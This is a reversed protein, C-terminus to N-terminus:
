QLFIPSSVNFYLLQWQDGHRILRIAIQASGNEFTAGAIYSATVVKGARVLFSINAEGKSGDYHKLKGLRSLRALLQDLQREDTIARRLEPSARKLLEEKSWTSVIIPVQEDVYAKSSADLRPGVYFLYGVISGVGIVLALFIWGLVMVVKKM